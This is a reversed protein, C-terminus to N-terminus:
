VFLGVFVVGASESGQLLFVVVAGAVSVRRSSASASAPTSTVVAVGGSHLWGSLAITLVGATVVLVGAAVVRRLSRGPTPTTAPAPAVRSTEGPPGVRRGVAETEVVVSGFTAGVGRGSTEAVLVILPKLM